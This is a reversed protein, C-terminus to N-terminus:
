PRVEDLDDEIAGAEDLFRKHYRLEGVLAAIRAFAPKEAVFATALEATVRSERARMATALARVKVLDRQRRADGLAERQEMVDMLFGPDPRASDTESVPQGLKALMAEARRIPDKLARFAENVEIARGLARQREGAPRGAYRDPHLARSLERHRQELVSSDLLFVPELGLIEFPDALTVSEPRSRDRFSAARADASPLPTGAAM